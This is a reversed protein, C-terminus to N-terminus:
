PREPTPKFVRDQNPQICYCKGDEVEMPTDGCAVLCAGQNFARPKIITYTLVMHSVWGVWWGFMVLLIEDREVGKVVRM